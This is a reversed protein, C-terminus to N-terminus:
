SAAARARAIADLEEKSADQVSSFNTVAKGYTRTEERSWISSVVVGDGRKSLLALAFSLDSGTDAFANYRVFGIRPVENTAVAELAILRRQAEGHSRASDTAASELTVIRDTAKAGSGGLLADHAELATSLRAIPPAAVLVHYAGVVILAIVLAALVIPLLQQVFSRM